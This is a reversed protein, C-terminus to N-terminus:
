EVKISPYGYADYQLEWKKGALEADFIPKFFTEYPGAGSLHKGNVFFSPTANVGITAGDILDKRIELFYKGEDFCTGFLKTDLGLKKAYGKLVDGVKANGAWESQGNFIADHMERFKGQENACEAAMAAPVSEKYKDLPFDRIVFKVKGTKVYNEDIAPFILTAFKGCAPCQYDTFEVVTVPANEDGYVSDDDPLKAIQDATLSPAKNGGGATADKTDNKVVAAQQSKVDFYPVQAIAYGVVVGVLVFTSVMWYNVKSPSNQVEM